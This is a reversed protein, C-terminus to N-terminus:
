DAHKVNVHSPRFARRRLTAAPLEGYRAAHAAAFRSLSTFAWQHAVSAVSTVSPDSDLLANHARRLRVERLYTMPSTGLYRQFGQQLARVSVHCRQAISSVTLPLHAEQEILDVAARIARPRVFPTVGAVANRYPNDAALLLAHILSDAFPLAVLQQRLPSANQFLQEAFLSLMDIWGRVADSETSMASVFDIQSTLQRGLTDSLADEVAHRDIKVGLLRSGAVWRSSSDDQPQYITATGPGCVLTSAKHVSEVNGSRLVNVRYANNIAACHIKADSGVVVEAVTVPGIRGVRQRLSFTEPDSLLRIHPEDRALCAFGDIGNVTTWADIKSEGAASPLRV